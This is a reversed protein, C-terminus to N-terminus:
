LQPMDGSCSVSFCVAACMHPLKDLGCVPMVSTYQHAAIGSLEVIAIQSQLMSMRLLMRGQDQGPDLSDHSRDSSCCRGTAAHSGANMQRARGRGATIVHDAHQAAIAATRCCSSM